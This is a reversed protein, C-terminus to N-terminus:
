HVTEDKHDREMLERVAREASMGEFLVACVADTIPMEIGLELARDRVVRSTWVGEVVKASSALIDELTEGQGIREGFARNRGHRSFATSPTSHLVGHVDSDVESQLDRDHIHNASDFM